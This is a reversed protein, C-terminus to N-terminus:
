LLVVSLFGPKYEIKLSARFKSGQKIMLGHLNYGKPFAFGLIPNYMTMACTCLHFKRLFGADMDQPQISVTRTM